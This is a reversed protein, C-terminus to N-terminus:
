QTAGLLRALMDDYLAYLDKAAPTAGVTHPLVAVRAGTQESLWQAPRQDQYTTLIIAKAPERALRTKLEALHSASPPIGPKPELTGASQMGLWDYLYVWDNHYSVVRIGKLPAAARAWRAVADNWRSEFAALQTRYHAANVADIAILRETLKPAVRGLRRPDIQVHPNGSAHVDGRSRDLTQPVDLRDVMAAAEFYGLQGPQVKANGAQRQLMPMWGVELEAGTCVALDAQRLKAILSPRAEIHHPNQQPTTASFVMVKDGALEKALAAWEPECAFVNLIAAVPAAFVLASVALSWKLLKMSVYGM